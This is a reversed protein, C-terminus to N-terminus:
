NARSTRWRTRGQFTGSPAPMVARVERRSVAYAILLALHIEWQVRTGSGFPSFLINWFGSIVVLAIVPLFYDKRGIATILVHGMLALVVAWFVFGLVGAWVWAGFIHSHTPILDSNAINAEVKGESGEFYGWEYLLWYYERYAPNKAWSGHGLIPSDSIANVSFIVEGRGALLVGYKGESQVRWKAAAEEGFVGSAGLQSMAVTTGWFLLLVTLSFVIARGPRRLRVFFLRMAQPRAATMWLIAAAGLIMGGISRSNLVFSVVALGIVALCVLWSKAGGSAYRRGSAILFLFAVPMALGWKWLGLEGITPSLFSYIVGGVQAGVFLALLARVDRRALALLSGCGLILFTIGLWGRALDVFPTDRYLDTAMQSLLWLIGFVVLRKFWPDDRVYWTIRKSCLVALVVLLLEFPYIEAVGPLVVRSLLGLLFFGHFKM